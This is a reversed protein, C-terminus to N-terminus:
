NALFFLLLYVNRVLIKCHFTNNLFDHTYIKNNIIELFFLQFLSPEM